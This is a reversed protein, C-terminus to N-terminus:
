NVSWCRGMLELKYMLMVGGLGIAVLFFNKDLVEGCSTALTKSSELERQKLSSNLRGLVM